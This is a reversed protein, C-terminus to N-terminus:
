CSSMFIAVSALLAFSFFVLASVTFYPTLDTPLYKPDYIHRFDDMQTPFFKKRFQEKPFKYKTGIPCITDTPCRM